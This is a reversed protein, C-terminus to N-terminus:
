NCHGAEYSYNKQDILATSILTFPAIYMKTKSLTSAQRQYARDLNPHNATLPLYLLVFTLIKKNCKAVKYHMLSFSPTAVDTTIEDGPSKDKQRKKQRNM